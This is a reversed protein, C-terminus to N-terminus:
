NMMLRVWYRATKLGHAAMMWGEHRTGTTARAMGEAREILRDLDAEIGAAAAQTEARKTM